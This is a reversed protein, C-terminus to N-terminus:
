ATGGKGLYLTRKAAAVIRGVDPVNANELCRAYPMPVQATTVREIPADLYRFASSQIRFAIEAGFGCFENTEHVIVM